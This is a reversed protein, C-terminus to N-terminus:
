AISNESPAGASHSMLSADKTDPPSGFIANSQAYLIYRFLVPGWPIQGRKYAISM